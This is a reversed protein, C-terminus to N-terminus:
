SLEVSAFVIFRDRAHRRQLTKAAEDADHQTEYVDIPQCVEGDTTIALKGEACAADLKRREDGVFDARVAPRPRGTKPDDVILCHAVWFETKAM